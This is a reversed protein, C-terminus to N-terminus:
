GEPGALSEHIVLFALVKKTFKSGDAALLVKM